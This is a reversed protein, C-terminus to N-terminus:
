IMLTLQDNVYGAIGNVDTLTKLLEISEKMCQTRRFFENLTNDNLKCLYSLSNNMFNMKDM